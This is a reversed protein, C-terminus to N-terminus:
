KEYFQTQFGESKMFSIGHPKEAEPYKEELTKVKSPLNAKFIEQELKDGKKDKSRLVRVKLLPHLPIKCNFYSNQLVDLITDM